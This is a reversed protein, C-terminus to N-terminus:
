IVTKKLVRGAEKLFIDHNFIHHLVSNLTIIDVSENEFPLRTGNYQKYALRCSFGRSSLNLRCRDLMKSSVDLCIFEDKENLYPCLATAVFGNGSGVDLVIRKKIPIIAILKEIMIKWRSPELILIEDTSHEYDGEVLNFYLENARLVLKDSYKIM